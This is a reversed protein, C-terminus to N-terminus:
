ETSNLYLSCVLRVTQVDPRDAKPFACPVIQRESPEEQREGTFVSVYEEKPQEQRERM